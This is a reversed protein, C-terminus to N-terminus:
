NNDHQRFDWKVTQKHFLVPHVSRFYNIVISCLFILFIRPVTLLKTSHGCLPATMCQLSTCPAVLHHRTREERTGTILLQTRATYESLIGNNHLTTKQSRRFRSHRLKLLLNRGVWRIECCSIEKEKGAQFFLYTPTSKLRGLLDSITVAVLPVTRSREAFIKWCHKWCSYLRQCVQM